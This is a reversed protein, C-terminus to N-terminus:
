AVHAYCSDTPIGIPANSYPVNDGIEECFHLCSKGEIGELAPFSDRRYLWANQPLPATAASALNADRERQDEDDALHYM